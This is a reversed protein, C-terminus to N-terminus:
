RVRVAGPGGLRDGAADRGGPRLAIAVEAAFAAASPWREARSRRSAASCWRTSRRVPDRAPAGVARAPARALIAQGVENVARGPFAHQNTLLEFTM